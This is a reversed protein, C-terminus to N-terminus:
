IICAKTEIHFTWSNNWSAFGPTLHSYVMLLLRGSPFSIRSGSYMQFYPAQVSQLVVQPRPVSCSKEQKTHKYQHLRNWCPKSLMHDETETCTLLILRHTTKLWLNTHHLFRQTVGACTRIVPMALTLVHVARCPISSYLDSYCVVTSTKNIIEIYNIGTMAILM